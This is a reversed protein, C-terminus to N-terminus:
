ATERLLGRRLRLGGRGDDCAVVAGESVCCAAGSGCARALTACATRAPRGEGGM